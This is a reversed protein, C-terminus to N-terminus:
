AALRLVELLDASSRVRRPNTPIFFDTMSREAISEFREAGIGVDALHGPLGLRRLLGDVQEMLTEGPLALCREIRRQRELVAPRNWEIAAAMVVCSTIGHALGYEAGLIHGIGHSVGMPVGAAPGVCAFWMGLQCQQRAAADTPAAVTAALGGALLPLAQLAMAETFADCHDSCVAEIAHDLARMGTSTWLLLPTSLGACPDLVITEPALGSHALRQKRGSGDTLGAMSTFEAGSLTTPVAILRPARGNPLAEAERYLSAADDAGYRLGHRVAKAADIVSGGGVAVIADVQADRMARLAVLVDDVPSHAGIDCHTLAHRAGLGRALAECLTQRISRSGLIGVRRLGHRECELRVVDVFPAGYVVENATLCRYRGNAFPAESESSCFPREVSV